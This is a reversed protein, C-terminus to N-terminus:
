CRTWRELCGRTGAPKMGDAACQDAISNIDECSPITWRAIIGNPYELVVRKLRRWISVQIADEVIRPPNIIM